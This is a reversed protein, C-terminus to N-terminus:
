LSMAVPTASERFFNSLSLPTQRGRNMAVAVPTAAEGHEIVALVPRTQWRQQFEVKNALKLPKMQWRWESAKFGQVTNVAPDFKAGDVREVIGFKCQLLKKVPELDVDKLWGWNPPTARWPLRGIDFTRKTIKGAQDECDVTFPKLTRGETPRAVTGRVFCFNPIQDVVVASIM